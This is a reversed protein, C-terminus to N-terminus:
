LDTTLGAAPQFLHGNGCDDATNPSVIVKRPAKQGQLVIILVPPHRDLGGCGVHAVQRRDFEILNIIGVKHQIAVVTNRNGSLLVQFVDVGIDGDDLRANRQRVAGTGVRQNNGGLIAGEQFPGMEVPKTWISVEYDTNGTLIGMELIM